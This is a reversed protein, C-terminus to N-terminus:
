LTDNYEKLMNAFEIVRPRTQEFWKSNKAEEAAELYKGQQLLKWTNEHIKYWNQGLQYSVKGLGEIFRGDKIGLMKAQKQAAEIATKTDNNIWTERDYDSSVLPEGNKDLLVPVTVGNKLKINKYRTKDVNYRKLEEETLLHGIGSTPKDLTDLYIYKTEGEAKKLDILFRESSFNRDTPVELEGGTNLKLRQMEIDIPKSGHYLKQREGEDYQKLM